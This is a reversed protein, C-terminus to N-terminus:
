RGREGGDCLELFETVTREQDVTSSWERWHKDKTQKSGEEEEEKKGGGRRLGLEQRHFPGPPLHPTQPLM